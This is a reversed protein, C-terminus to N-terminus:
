EKVTLKKDQSVSLTIVQTDVEILENVSEANDVFLPLHLDYHNMLANIIDLGANIRAANNLGTSYNAGGVTPECCEILGGNIATDFLKFKVIRFQSNITETLLSVKTRVYEELVMLQQELEGFKLGLSQEKAILEDVREQQKAHLEFRYLLDNVDNIEALISDIKAQLEIVNAQEGRELAEIQRELKDYQNRLELGRETNHFYVFRNKQCEMEALIERKEGTKYDLLANHSELAHTFAAEEKELEVIEDQCEIIKAKNGKGRAKYEAMREAKAKNYDSLEKDYNAKIEALKSEDYQRGCVPCSLKHEDFDPFVELKDQNFMDRLEDNRGELIKITHKRSDKKANIHKLKEKLNFIDVGLEQIEDMCKDYHKQLEGVEDAYKDTETQIYAREENAFKTKLEARKAVLDSMAAPSKAISLEEQARALDAQLALKRTALEQKDLEELDPLSRQAEDIRGPLEKIDKNVQKMAQKVLATREEVSKGDLIEPLKALEKNSAIVDAESVDGAMELLIKRRDDAKMTEAFYSVKTLMQFLQEGGLEEIASKYDRQSVKLEDIYYSTTHGDFSEKLSGRKKTWKEAIKRTLEKEVGDIVLNVTVETELHHKEQNNEDLPKWDFKTDSQDKSDKGFLCWLFADYVTTKGTGNGGYLAMGKGLAVLEFQSIGKFNRITISDLKIRM